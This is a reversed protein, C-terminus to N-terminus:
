YFKNGSVKKSKVKVINELLNATEIGKFINSCVEVNEFYMSGVQSAAYHALLGGGGNEARVVNNKFILTGTKAFEQLFYEWNLSNFENGVFKLDLRSINNCYITTNGEFKNNEALISVHEITENGSVSLNSLKHLGSLSNNRMNVVGGYGYANIATVGCGREDAHVVSSMKNGSFDIKAGDVDLLYNYNYGGNIVVSKNDIVNGSIEYADEGHSYDVIRFLSRSGVETSATELMKIDNQTFSVNKSTTNQEKQVFFLCRVDGAVVIKNNNVRFGDVKAAIESRKAGEHNYLSFFMTMPVNYGNNGSELYFSNGSVSINKKVSLAAKYSPNWADGWTGFFAVTEDNGSKKFDNGEVLVNQADGTFWLIGGTRCNNYNIFKCSCVNVNSSNRINVNTCSANDIYSSCGKIGVRNAHYIKLLYKASNINWLMGKHKELNIGVNSVDVAITRTRHGAAKIFCDDTFRSAARCVLTSKSAGKGTVAVNCLMEVTGSLYYKGSDFCVKVTDRETMGSAAKQWEATVDRGAKTFNLVRVVGQSHVFCVALALLTVFRAM